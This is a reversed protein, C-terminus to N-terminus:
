LLGLVAVSGRRSPDPRGKWWGRSRDGKGIVAGGLADGHAASYNTLSHVLTTSRGARDPQHRNATAITLDSLAEGGYVHAVEAVAAIDTLRLIPNAPTETHVLRTVPRM